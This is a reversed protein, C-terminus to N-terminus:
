PSEGGSPKYVIADPSLAFDVFVLCQCSGSILVVRTSPLARHARDTRSRLCGTWCNHPICRAFYITEDRADSRVNVLLGNCRHLDGHSGLRIDRRRRRDGQNPQTFARRCPLMARALTTAGPNCDLTPTRLFFIDAPRALQHDILRHFSVRSRAQAQPRPLARPPRAHLAFLERTTSTRWSCQSSSWTPSPRRCSIKSPTHSACMFISM